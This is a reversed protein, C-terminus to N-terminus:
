FIGKAWQETLRKCEELDKETFEEQVQLFPFSSPWMRPEEHELYLTNRSIRYNDLEDQIHFPLDQLHLRRVREYYMIMKGYENYLTYENYIRNEYEKYEEPFPMLKIIKRWEGRAARYCLNILEISLEESMISRFEDITIKNNKYEDLNDYLKKIQLLEKENLTFEIPNMINM